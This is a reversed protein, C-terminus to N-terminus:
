KHVRKEKHHKPTELRERNLWRFWRSIPGNSGKEFAILGPVTLDVETGAGIRSRVRLNAGIRKSRERIGVLGWHGELGSHLVQPDIGRGDDRVLVRLHRSAYEVEVEIRNAHAHMFANLLAERGIRYVEDRILPRVPRTVSDVIVRYDTKGDLPFEQRLRSFATELSQNGSETTRLGRLANRGEETVTGMLQLVRKLLPKAPSEEPLQDEAVDLQLSASLVGQLLTDHLEQAIRTREALREQFGVNLRKTLHHIRLRYIVLIMLCCGALCAVRFWWTQWYAPEIVFPVSTEPGNWLGVNNSAIIRFLYTGPGLNKYVVQRSAVSDSWGQDSGDLKYRFRIREPMALNTSRYNLTISQVGSPIKIPNQVKVPSGGASMSEIRVAVPTSNKSIVIPDAMSLGSKGSIWIRGERDAVVSRDRGAGEVGPLGDDIGYSQVDAESLSDSLLRDHNVRLVHDSTIFWLSGMGDEAVGLIQERLAEPLRVPVRIKGSSLYALGNSTVIWLVHKTDEFITRVISSPLGDSATRNTWYGNAFSALGSPTAVWTTGDFGEVISNVGNSPLGSSDSYNTFKGGNLRSVGASVTGAWITGDRDRHVSYVSNQALGDAETYTRATFSDGNGTLVTLGGHQRGVCVEGGGGSISYVVDHELGDVTIQGVQGEKMWYLGGSLPAFWIRDTSGAYVSGIGSSPLGDSTSYTTLTGNRLREIGRSGGFWIDGDLDEYIATVEFGPKPNLQDLSVAGSRTIRVIGHNTGIWINMANDRAMTLVQLQKLSSPLNLTALVGGEWLHIGDDSGIWLGGTDAPLLANIKSDKLEQAVRSIHGQSLRFLGNDQTGFWISQDRTAALSIVNGPNQEASVITELRGNQYRFTRDGLGSLIVRGEYDSVAATFTIDQLDFLAYPDEFKGDHYLLMRPGELRIWLNGSADTVLGRVRDILPSNPLPRKILTFNSGNFRVLGRETGIWLYGDTSQCIAYIKGGVFGKDEGWKDHVYQSIRRAPDLGFAANVLCLLAIGAILEKFYGVGRCWTKM